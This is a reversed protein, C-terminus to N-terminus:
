KKVELVSGKILEQRAADFSGEQDEKVKKALENAKQKMAPIDIVAGQEMGLVGEFLLQQAMLSYIESPGQTFLERIRQGMELDKKAEIALESGFHSFEAAQNYAALQKTVRAGISKQRDNHGHGGVRSVSLGPSVAPRIGDRFMDMDMILQGDTISMINTPLFGTIDGGAVHVIPLSTLTKHNSALRGARELLSSHAFFMDGPFSDRGPSVGALLSIERYVHAHNTLDDYIIIVDRNEHQWLYEAMACAVYPAIYSMVLSDFLTTVLVITNKMADNESLKNLLDDVDARRKAVMVYVVIRDSDKQNLALQTLITSKGSKSDGLFALRQGLVLPFLLDIVSIGTELQDELTQRGILAPADNFVPWVTDAAIPGKDDLPQGTASVVRGIFDKGVKTLLQPHQVVAAIGTTLTKNGLHMVSVFEEAIERVIGKSGDEFMILSHTRVPHLGRVKLLYREVGVVEGVPNGKEVLYHFHKESM